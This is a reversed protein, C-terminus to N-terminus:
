QCWACVITLSTQQTRQGNEATDVTYRDRELLRALARVFSAEDDILLVHVPTHLLPAGQEPRSSAVPRRRPTFTRRSWAFAPRSNRPANCPEKARKSVPAPIGSIM